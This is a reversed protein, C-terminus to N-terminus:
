SMFEKTTTITAGKSAVKDLFERRWDSFKFSAGPIDPVPACADEFFVCKKVFDNDGLEESRNIADLASFRLCHSGAWGAWLIKDHNKTLFVRLQHNFKPETNSPLDFEPGFVSYNESYPNTGKSVYNVFNNTKECWDDYANQLLPYVNNGWTGIQCHVPWLCLPPRKREELGRTYLLAWEKSSIFQNIGFPVLDWCPLYREKKVDDHTVITFPEPINGQSDRWAVNHSCDNRQHSDLTATISTLNVGMRRILKAVAVSEKGAGEVYLAGRVGEPEIGNACFDNQGDIVVLAIKSMDKESNKM